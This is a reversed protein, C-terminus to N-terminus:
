RIGREWDADDVGPRWLPPIVRVEETYGPSDRRAKQAAKYNHAEECTWRRLYLLPLAEVIDAGDVEDPTEM